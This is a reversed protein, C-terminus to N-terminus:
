IRNGSKLLYNKIKSSPNEILYKIILSIIICNIICFLLSISGEKEINLKDMLLQTLHIVGKHTLYISYSLVALRNTWVSKSHYLFSSKSVASMLILGFGASVITFGIISATQSTQDNCIWFSFGVVILGSILLINGNSNIFSKFWISYEYFYAIGIGTVLGDLRTYTPYYIKMYWIRWFDAANINPVIFVQWSIIRAAISFLLLFLLLYKIYVVKKYKFFLLLIIPFLLYFQEEICLSWAHSFSGFHLLDLEINQTFTIFKWLPPLAERERFFPFAFYLFLTLAFPPIIRFFRKIYFEKLRIEASSKIQEFLQKSILFGSIVFFLDVGTWGFRGYTDIWEPHAFMRYHYILVMFIALARLHDLGNFKESVTSNMNTKKHLYSLM